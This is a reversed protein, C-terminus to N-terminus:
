FAIVSANGAPGAVRRCRPISAAIGSESPLRRPSPAKAAPSRVRRRDPKDIWHAALYRDDRGANQKFPLVVNLTGPRTLNSALDPVVRREQRRETATGRAGTILRGEGLLETGAKIERVDNASRLRRAPTTRISQARGGCPINRRRSRRGGQRRRDASCHNRIVDPAQGRAGQDPRPRAQASDYLGDIMDLQVLQNLLQREM